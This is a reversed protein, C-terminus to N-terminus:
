RIGNCAFILKSSTFPAKLAPISTVATAELSETSLIRLSGVVGVYVRISKRAPYWILLAIRKSKATVFRIFRAYAIGRPPTSTVLVFM